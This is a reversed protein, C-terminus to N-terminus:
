GTRRSSPSLTSLDIALVAGIKHMLYFTPGVEGRELRALHNSSIQVREALEVQTWGRALRERRIAEGVRANFAEHTGADTKRRRGSKERSSM